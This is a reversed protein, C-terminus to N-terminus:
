LDSVLYLKPDGRSGDAYIPTVHYISSRPKRNYRKSWESDIEHYKDVNIPFLLHTPEGKEIEIKRRKEKIEESSYYPDVFVKRSTLETPTEDETELENDTPNEIEEDQSFKLAASKLMKLCKDAEEDDAYPNGLLAFKFCENKSRIRLLEKIGRLEWRYEGKGEIFDRYPVVCGEKAKKLQKQIKAIKREIQEIKM